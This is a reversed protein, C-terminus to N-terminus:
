QMAAQLQKALESLQNLQAIRDEGVEIQTSAIAQQIEAAKAPDAADLSGSAHDLLQAASGFNNRDLEQMARVVSAHSAFLAQRRHLQALEAQVQATRQEAQALRADFEAQATEARSQEASSLAISTGGWTLLGTVLAAASGVGVLRLMDGAGRSRDEPVSGPPTTDATADPDPQTGHENDAM